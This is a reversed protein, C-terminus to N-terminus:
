DLPYYITFTSGKGLESEVSVLGKQEETLQKVFALGLGTGRTRALDGKPVRYFKDFIFEQYEKKIGRGNDEVSLIAYGDKDSLSIIVNAEEM